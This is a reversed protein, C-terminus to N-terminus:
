LQKVVRVTTPDEACSSEEFGLARAFRRERANEKLVLGGMSRYGRERAARMLAAMLLGAIGSRRWADAVVVGFECTAGDPNGVYRAEGVLMTLGNENVECVFAMHHEYDIHTFFRIMEEGFEHVAKMFRMRRSEESLGAFFRQEEAEDDPRIPRILVTRGDALTRECALHEPYKAM